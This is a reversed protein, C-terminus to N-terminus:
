LMSVKLNVKIFDSYIVEGTQKHLHIMDPVHINELNLRIVAVRNKTAVALNLTNQTHDRVTVLSVDKNSIKRVDAYLKLSENMSIEKNHRCKDFLESRTKFKDTSGEPTYHM